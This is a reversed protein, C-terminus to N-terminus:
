HETRMHKEKEAWMAIKAEQEEAAKKIEAAEQEATIISCDPRKKRVKADCILTWLASYVQKALAPSVRWSGFSWDNGVNGNASQCKVCSM